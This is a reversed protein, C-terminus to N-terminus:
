LYEKNNKWLREIVTVFDLSKRYNAMTNNNQKYGKENINFITTSGDAMNITGHVEEKNVFINVSMIEM